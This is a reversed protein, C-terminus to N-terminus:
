LRYGPTVFFGPIYKGLSAAAAVSAAQTINKAVGNAAAVMGGVAVVTDMGLKPLMSGPTLSVKTIVAVQETAVGYAVGVLLPVANLSGM